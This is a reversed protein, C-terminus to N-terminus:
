GHRISEGARDRIKTGRVDQHVIILYQGDADQLFRKIATYANFNNGATNDAILFETNSTFNKKIFSEKMLNYEEQNNVITCISFLGAYKKEASIVISEASM